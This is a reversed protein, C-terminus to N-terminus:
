QSLDIRKVHSFSGFLQENLFNGLLKLLAELQPLNSPCDVPQERLFDLM